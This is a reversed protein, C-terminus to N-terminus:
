LNSLGTVLAGADILASYRPSLSKAIHRLVVDVTWSKSLLRTSVLRPKTLTRIILAESGKEFECHMGTPLLSTSSPTGSFGLRRDFLMQRGAIDVGSAMIKVRRHRMVEPFVHKRLYYVIMEPSTQLAEFCKDVHPKERPQLLELPLVEM